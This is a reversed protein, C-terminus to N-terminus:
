LRGEYLIVALGVGAIAWMVFGWLIRRAKDGPLEPQMIDM